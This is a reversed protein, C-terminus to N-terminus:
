VQMEEVSEDKNIKSIILDNSTRRYEVGMLHEAIFNQVEDNNSFGLVLNGKLEDFIDTDVGDYGLKEVDEITEVVVVHTLNEMSEPDVGYIAKLDPLTPEDQPFLNFDEDTMDKVIPPFNYPDEGADCRYISKKGSEPMNYYVECEINRDVTGSSVQALLSKLLGENSKIEENHYDNNSKKKAELSTIEEQTVAAKQALEKFEEDTLPDSFTIVKVVPKETNLEKVDEPVSNQKSM